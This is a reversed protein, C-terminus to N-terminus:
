PTRTSLAIGDGIPVRVSVYGNGPTRVYDLYSRMVSEFKDTDDAVVLAGSRLRPEVLKLVPLTLDKWGDLFLLDVQGPLDALTQLADGERIEVLDALGADALNKRATTVKGANLETSILRGAGLDRLAAAIHIASIGFSTGFEVVLRSGQSRILTYLFRGADRDVPMYSKALIAELESGPAPAAPGDGESSSEEIKHLEADAIEADAFLRDLVASVTPDSLASPM